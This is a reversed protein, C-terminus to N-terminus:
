AKAPQEKVISDFRQGCVMCHIPEHTKERAIFHIPFRYVEGCSKCKLDLPRLVGCRPCYISPPSAAGCSICCLLDDKKGSKIKVKEQLHKLGEVSERLTKILMELKHRHQISEREIDSCSSIHDADDSIKSLETLKSKINKYATNLDSLQLLKKEMLRHTETEKETNGYELLMKLEAALEEANRWRRGFEEVANRSKKEIAHRKEAYKKEQEEKELREIDKQKQEEAQRKKDEGYRKRKELWVRYTLTILAVAAVTLGIFIYKRYEGGYVGSIVIALTFVTLPLVRTFAFSRDLIRWVHIMLLPLSLLASFVMSLWTKIEGGLSLIMFIVFFLFYNMALLLFDGWHFDDLRGPQKMESLYLFGLGFILVALGALQSFLIIRGIPSMAGPLEVIVKRDTVLNDYDWLLYGPKIESPQLTEAGIFESTVGELLLTLRFSGARGTGPGEYVYRDYGQAGYTVEVTLYKGRPLAGIWKIGTLTYIVGAPETFKDSPDICKLSVNRAQTTGAPFPFVLKILDKESSNNRFVFRGKFDADFLTYVKLGHLYHSAVLKVEVDASETVPMVSPPETKTRKVATKHDKSVSSKIHEALPFERKKSKEHYSVFAPVVFASLIGIIAVVVILEILTFGRYKSQTISASCKLFLCIATRWKHSEGKKSKKM